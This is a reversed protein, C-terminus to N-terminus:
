RKDQLQVSSFLLLDNISEWPDKGVRGEGWADMAKRGDDHSVTGVATGAQEMAVVQPWPLLWLKKKKESFNIPM